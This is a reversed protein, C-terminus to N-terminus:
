KDKLKGLQSNPTTFEETSGGTYDGMRDAEEAEIEKFFPHNLCEAASLRKNVDPELM